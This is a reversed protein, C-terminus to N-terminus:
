SIVVVKMYFHCEILLGIVEPYVNLVNQQFNFNFICAINLLFCRFINHEIKLSETLTLYEKM